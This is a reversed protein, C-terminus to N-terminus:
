AGCDAALGALLTRDAESFVISGEFLPGALSLTEAAHLGALVGEPLPQFRIRWSDRRWLLTEAVELPMATGDITLVVEPNQDVGYFDMLDVIHFYGLDLQLAPGACGLIAHNCDPGICTRDLPLDEPGLIVAGSPHRVAVWDLTQAGVPASAVLVAALALAARYGRRAARGIQASARAPMIRPMNM